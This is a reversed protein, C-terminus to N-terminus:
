FRITIGFNAFDFKSLRNRFYAEVAINKNLEVSLGYTLFVKTSESSYSARQKLQSIPTKVVSVSSDGRIISDIREGQPIIKLEEAVLKHTFNFLSGFWLTLEKLNFPNVEVAVPFQIAYEKDETIKQGVKREILFREYDDPDNSLTDGDWYRVYVSDVSDYSPNFYTYRYYGNIGFAIRTSSNLEFVETYYAKFYNETKGKSSMFNEENYSLSDYKSTFTDIVTNYNGLYSMDVKSINDVTKGEKLVFIGVERFSKPGKPFFYDFNLSYGKGLFSVEEDVRGQDYLVHTEERTTDTDVTWSFYGGIATRQESTKYGLLLSVFSSDDMIIGAGFRVFNKNEVDKRVYDGSGIKQMIFRNDPYTAEIMSYNFYGFNELTDGPKQYETKFQSKLFSASVFWNEHVFQFGVIATLNFVTSDGNVEFKVVRARDYSGNLDADEYQLTDKRFYGSTGFINSLPYKEGGIKVIGGETLPESKVNGGLIFLKSKTSFSSFNSFFHSNNMLFLYSPNQIFEQPGKLLFSTAFYRGSYFDSIESSPSFQSTLVILFLLM